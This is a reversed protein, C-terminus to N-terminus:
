TTAANGKWVRVLQEKEAKTLKRIQYERKLASVKNPTEETWAVTVPRKMRTYKAGKGENHKIVRTVLDNTIGCYLTGDKCRLLYCLWTATTASLTVRGEGMRKPNKGEVM